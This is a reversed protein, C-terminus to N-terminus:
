LGGTTVWPASRRSCSGARAPETPRPYCSCQGVPSRLRVRRLQSLDRSSYASRSSSPARHRIHDLWGIWFSPAPRGVSFKRSALGHWPWDRGCSSKGKSRGSAYGAARRPPEGIAASPRQHTDIGNWSRPKVERGAQAFRTTSSLLHTTRCMTATRITQETTKPPGATARALHPARGPSAASTAAVSAATAAAHGQQPAGRVTVAQTAARTRAAIRAFVSGPRQARVTRRSKRLVHGSGAAQVVVVVVVSGPPPQMVSAFQSSPLPHENSWQTPPVHSCSQMQTPGPPAAVHQGPGAASQTRGHPAVAAPVHPPVHGDPAVHSADAAAVHPQTEPRPPGHPPLKRSGTQAAPSTQWCLLGSTVPTHTADSQM